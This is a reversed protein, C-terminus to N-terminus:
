IKPFFMGGKLWIVRNKLADPNVLIGEWTSFIQWATSYMKKMGTENM